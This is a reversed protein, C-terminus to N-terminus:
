QMGLLDIAIVRGRDRLSKHLVVQSWGGPAGGLDVVLRAGRLIHHKEHIQLLKFAARSRYNGEHAARVWPDQSQKIFWQRRITVIYLKTNVWTFYLLSVVTRPHAYNSARACSAVLLLGKCRNIQRKNVHERGVRM